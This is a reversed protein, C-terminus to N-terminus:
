KSFYYSFIWCCTFDWFYCVFNYFCETIFYSEIFLLLCDLQHFNLLTKCFAFPCYENEFMINVSGRIFMMKQLASGTQFQYIRIHVYAVKSSLAFNCLILTFSGDKIWCLLEFAFIGCSIILREQSPKEFLFLFITM